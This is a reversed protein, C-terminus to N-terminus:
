RHLNPRVIGIIACTLDSIIGTGKLSAYAYSNLPSITGLTILAASGSILGLVLDAIRTCVAVIGAAAYVVRATVQRKMFTNENQNLQGAYDFIPRAYRRAIPSFSSDLYPKDVLESECNVIKLNSLFPNALLNVSNFSLTKTVDAFRRNGFLSIPTFIIGVLSKSTKEIPNAINSLFYLITKSAISSIINDWDFSINNSNNFQRICEKNQRTIRLNTQNDHNQYDPHSQDFEEKLQNYAGHIHNSFSHIQITMTKM